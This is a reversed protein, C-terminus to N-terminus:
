KRLVQYEELSVPGNAEPATRKLYKVREDASCPLDNGFFLQESENPRVRRDLIYVKPYLDRGKPADEAVALGTDAVDLVNRPEAVAEDRGDLVLAHRRISLL